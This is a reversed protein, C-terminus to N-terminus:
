IRGGRNWASTRRSRSAATHRDTGAAVTQPELPDAGAWSGHVGELLVDFVGVVFTEYRGLHRALDARRPSARRAHEVLDVRLRDEVADGLV